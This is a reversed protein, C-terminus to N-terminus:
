GNNKRIRRSATKQVKSKKSRRAMKKTKSPGQYALKRDEPLPEARAYAIEGSVNLRMQDRQAYFRSLEEGTLRRQATIRQTQPNIKKGNKILEWHLHPGTSRGTNGVYGIIDGAKVKRGVKSKEHFKSMHAYATSYESNHKIQIYMGYSGKRKAQTITGEGPARIPTGTPAGYDTGWHTITYGLIPHKRKGFKSTIRPRKLPHMTFLKRAIKGKEDYYDEKGQSDKYFYREHKKSRLNIEAYLLSGNGTPNGEKNYEKQFVATFTDGKRLDRSFDVPGDFSWIIQQIVNTPIGVEKANNIFAGDIIGEAYETKLDVEPEILSAEFFDAENRTATFRNGHRDEITVSFLSKEETDTNMKGIEVKDGVQIKKVDLVDSLAESILYIERNTLGGKKLVVSLNQRPKLTFSETVDPQIPAATMETEEETESQALVSHDRDQVLPLDIEAVPTLTQPEAAREQILAATAEDSSNHASSYKLTGLVSGAGILTGALFIQVSRLKPRISKKLPFSTEMDDAIFDAATSELQDLLIRTSNMIRRICHSQVQNDNASSDQKLNM